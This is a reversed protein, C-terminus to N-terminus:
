NRTLRKMAENAPSSYQQVEAPPMETVHYWKLKSLFVESATSSELYFHLM